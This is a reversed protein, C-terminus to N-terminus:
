KRRKVLDDENTRNISPLDGPPLLPDKGKYIPTMIWAMRQAHTLEECSRKARVCANAEALTTFKEAIHFKGDDKIQSVAYALIPKPM